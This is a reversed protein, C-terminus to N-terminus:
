RHNYQMDSLIPSPIPQSKTSYYMERLDCSADLRQAEQRRSGVHSSIQIIVNAEPINISNDGVKSLFIINVDPGHKFAYLIRTRERHSTADHIMPKKLKMAYETLAFLNDAFVIIKDGRQKV